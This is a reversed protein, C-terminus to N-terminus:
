SRAWSRSQATTSSTAGGGISALLDHLIGEPDRKAKLDKAIQEDRLKKKQKEIQQTAEHETVAKAHADKAAVELRTLARLAEQLAPTKLLGPRGIIAGWLNPVVAWDDLRRPRIAIQCGVVAGLAVVAAVAPYDVPVQMREAVDAVWPRLRDPLLVLDFPQVPPLGQPLSAPEPWAGQGAGAERASVRELELWDAVRGAVKEGFLEVLSTWGYLKGDSSARKAADRAIGQRRVRERDAGAGVAIRELLQVVREEPCGGRTLWGAVKLNADHRGGAVANGDRDRHPGAPWHKALLAVAALEAVARQLVAARVLAPEGDAEWEIPEGSPHTSEPFVTQSGDGQADGRLEVLMANDTPDKFQTTECREAHAEGTEPDLAGCYYLRHSGPKSERGFVAETPPLVERAARLAQPCDLDIDVLGGSAQGLIIGVNQASCNFYRHADAEGIRLEQWRDLTPRKKRYPIPVPSWGRAVYALALDLATM